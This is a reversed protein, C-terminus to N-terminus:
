VLNISANWQPYSGVNLGIDKLADHLPKRVYDMKIKGKNALEKARMAKLKINADESLCYKIYDELVKKNDYFYSCLLPDSLAKTLTPNKQPIFKECEQYVRIFEKSKRMIWDHCINLAENVEADDFNATTDANDFIHQMTPWIRYNDIRKLRFEIEERHELIADAVDQADLAILRKTHHKMIGILLQKGGDVLFHIANDLGNDWDKSANYICELYNKVRKM